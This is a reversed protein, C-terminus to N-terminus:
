MMVWLLGGNGMDNIEESSVDIESFLRWL